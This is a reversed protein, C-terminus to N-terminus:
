ATKHWISFDLLERRERTEPDVGASRFNLIATLSLDSAGLRMRAIVLERLGIAQDHSKGYVDLQVRAQELCSDGGAGGELNNQPVCVIVHYVLAPLARNDAPREEPWLRAENEAQDAVQAAIAADGLLHAQLDAELSPM